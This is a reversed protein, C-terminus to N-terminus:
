NSTGNNLIKQIIKQVMPAEPNLCVERGNKLTAIVETQTCHAGPPTMRVSQLSKLQIGQVTQLCQCRLEGAVPVGTTQSTALLLLLLLASRLLPARASHVM